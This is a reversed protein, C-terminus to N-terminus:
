LNDSLFKKVIGRKLQEHCFQNQYNRLCGYCSTEEGCDCKKVREFANQLVEQLNRGEILRKVHGAGGPVTDFLVLAVRNEYPYLCGDLDQRRIGLGESMGELVAYLLSFWFSSNMKISKDLNYKELSITLVDTKFAHGLHLPGRVSSSCDEGYPSIHTDRPRHSFAAGCAFCIWFGVSKRGKCIVALEGQTSYQCKIRFNGIEFKKEIPGKYDFFYPRTTFERKPRSEGPIKPDQEKNTVFGFKPTIFKELNARELSRQCSSCLIVPPEETTVNVMHFRGCKSCIAYWSIPWARDRVLKLGASQWIFGNAVVQSEPAFESIAIRLDRELKINKAEKSKYLPTLEVVDVPFGYKPIVTHTALFDILKRKKIEEMRDRAWNRDQTLKTEKARNGGEEIIKKQEEGKKEYFERLRSFEDRIKADAIELYGDKNVLDKVWRWNELDFEGQMDDSITRKLSELISKPKSELFEKLKKLGSDGNGELRFFSEVDGYYDKYNRFFKSLVISHLHRRVIKENYIEVVPPIIKGNVMKEPEKFYTLDHSRLQSFTLTFGTSSLRRGARGSRQIYNSPEPPVNRLFITELEGLDVGLEFTTSCSLVNIKGKIFKQQINAAYDTNLQATHEHVIINDASLNKYLYRYHNSEIESKQSPGLQRLVGECNFTPCVGRVNVPTIVGCRDCIFSPFDSNEPIVEWYKYDLQSLLGERGRPDQFQFIGEDAWFDSLDDWIKYLIKKCEEYGKKANTIKEYLKKLFDIRGNVRSRTPIWSYIGKKIDSKECRFKYERNRHFRAFVEDDHSPAGHPLTIAKNFRLTNILIQYLSIAEEESLNWPPNLLENIPKWGKPPIPLYSLLGVGELCNRRDLACFEQLIWGWLEKREDIGPPLLNKRKVLEALDNFLKELSYSANLGNKNVAEVILRRFLIRKYTSELYPAFFAADQRSDSFILIKKEKPDKKKLHQFLATALVATPADQQFIFERVINVSRLGCFYCTNLIDNKPVIEILTIITENTHSFDCTPLEDKEWIAGCKACLKWVKGKKALEEPVAVEEDEDEELSLNVKWLLFYRNKRKTDIQNVSHELKGDVIDGVLYEQGCRRCSALEFVAHGEKTIERRELFIRPEPFFSVFTGEPARVFLHYRAPLLPLSEDEPRAWVAVNVLNIASLIDEDSPEDSDIIQKICDEFNISGIELLNRLRVVKEEKSFVHYLFGKVNDKAQDIAYNLIDSPVGNDKCIDYSRKLLSSEEPYETIIEYLKSYLQIPIQYSSGGETQVKIRDDKIIDKIEEKSGWEFKEGFLNSAFDAVKEFSEEEKILTASTAISTLVGRKGECIRDKLRRILMGMEIGNAGNYIHAEDLVLFKWHKAYEGDFFSTDKPRLLLYELMAYNTILIHPPKDRMEERSLLEGKVPDEGPNNRKFQEEGQKRTEKTDGVYRGFTIPAEGLKEEIKKAINRLKRLQDNALANMPYILVARVGPTLTGKKYENLLHNYIPLMFCETKGSSTGSAIVVNRDNLIKRVAKEQHTYLREKELYPLADYIFKEIDDDLVGQKVLDKLYCGRKFLPTAELLPGNTYSFKKARKYFLDRLRQDRLRFSSILYRIYGEKVDNTLILPNIPM